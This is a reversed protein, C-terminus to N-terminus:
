SQPVLREYLATLMRKVEQVRGLLQAYRKEDLLTLDRALVIHYECGSASSLAIGVFRGFDRDSARCCGEALNAPISSAARRMQSTLGYREEKPFGRTARYILLTLDHSKQWVKLDRFDKM